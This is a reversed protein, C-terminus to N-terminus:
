LDDARIGDAFTGTKKSYRVCISYPGCADFDNIRPQQIISMMLSQLRNDLDEAQIQKLILPTKKDLIWEIVMTLLYAAQAAQAYIWYEILQSSISYPSTIQGDQFASIDLVQEPVVINLPLRDNLNPTRCAFPIDSELDEIAIM